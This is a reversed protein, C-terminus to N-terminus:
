IVIMDYSTHCGCTIGFGRCLFVTAFYLGAITRFVFTVTTFPESGLYHYGSFLVASLIIIGACAWNKRLQLLDVLLFSLLNMVILRFILEEYIGAGICPVAWGTLAIPGPFLPIRALYPAAALWVLLLPIGLLASEIAM